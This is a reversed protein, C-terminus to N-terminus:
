LKCIDVEIEKDEYKVPGLAGEIALDHAIEEILDERSTDTTDELAKFEEAFESRWDNVDVEFDQYTTITVTIRRIDTM